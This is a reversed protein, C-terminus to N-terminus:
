REAGCKFCYLPAYPHSDRRWEHECNKRINRQIERLEDELEKLESRKIKLKEIFEKEVILWDTKLIPM